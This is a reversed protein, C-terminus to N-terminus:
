LFFAAYELGHVVEVRRTDGDDVVDRQVLDEVVVEVPQFGGRAAVGGEVVLQDVVLGAIKDLEVDEEVAVGHIRERGDNM